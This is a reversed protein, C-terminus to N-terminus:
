FVGRDSLVRFIEAGLPQFGEPTFHAFDVQDEVGQRKLIRDVDIISFDLQQSLEILMVNFQRIRLAMPKDILQYSHTTSGPEVALTNFILVHAGTDRQLREVVRTINARSEEVGLKGVKDFNKRFWQVTSLESLVREMSQGLWWGGPDVLLGTERHRYATRVLDAAVTLVAVTKPFDGFGPVPFTPDFLRPEFYGSSLRLRETLLAVAEEPVDDLTQLLIDSRAAAVRGQERMICCAGDLRSQILPAAAFVASLDCAGKLYIGVRNQSHSGAWLVAYRKAVYQKGFRSRVGVYQRIAFRELATGGGSEYRETLQARRRRLWREPPTEAGVHARIRKMVPRLRRRLARMM